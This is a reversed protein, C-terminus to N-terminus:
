EEQGEKRPQEAGEDAPEIKEVHFCGDCGESGPEFERCIDPRLSYHKCGAPTLWLCPDNDDFDPGEIYDVIEALLAPHETLEPHGLEFPPTPQRRCCVGCRLCVAALLSGPEADAAFARDYNERFQDPTCYREDMPRRKSGKSM